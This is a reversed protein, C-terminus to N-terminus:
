SVLLHDVGTWMAVEEKKVVKRMKKESAVRGSSSSSPEPSSRKATIRVPAPEGSNIRLPFNLLARTGRMRFAARDYAVAADEATAFTGLWLRAGNRAPDRIEAAFKGWPRRRVGRYHRGKAPGVALGGGGGSRDVEVPDAKLCPVWGAREADRLVGLLVMDEPDNERLPLEGWNETFLSSSSSTRAYRPATPFMMQTESDDLLHRRVSELFALDNDSCVQDCM